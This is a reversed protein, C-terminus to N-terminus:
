SARGYGRVEAKTMAHGKAGDEIDRWRRGCTIGFRYFRKHLAEVTLGFSLAIDDDTRGCSRHDAIMDVFEPGDIEGPRGHRASAPLKSPRFAAVTPM